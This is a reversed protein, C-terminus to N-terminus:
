EGTFKPERKEFFARAGELNDRTMATQVLAETEFHLAGELSGELAADIMAKHLQVAVPARSAIREALAAAADRETGDPVMRNVLGIRHAEAADILEGTYALERAKALGIKRPMFYTGGNTITVGINVEPFGFRTSEAAVVLDCAFVVECGAGVAYGHVCAVVPCRAQRIRRTSHQLNKQWERLQAPTLKGSEIDENHERIEGVDHGALFARGEGELVLCRVDRDADIAALHEDFEGWSEITMANLREPRNFRLWMVHGRKELIFRDSM